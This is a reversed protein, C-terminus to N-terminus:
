VKKKQTTNENENAVDSLLTNRHPLFVYYRHAEEQHHHYMIFIYLMETDNM